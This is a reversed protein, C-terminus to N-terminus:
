GPHQFGASNERGEKLGDVYKEFLDTRFSILQSLSISFSWYEPESKFLQNM